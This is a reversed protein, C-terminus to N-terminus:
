TNLNSDTQEVDYFFMIVSIFISDYAKVTEKIRKFSNIQSTPSLGM